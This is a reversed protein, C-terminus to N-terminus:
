VLWNGFFEGFFVNHKAGRVEPQRGFLTMMGFVLLGGLTIALLSLAPALLYLREV